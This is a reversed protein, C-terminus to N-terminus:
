KSYGCNIPANMKADIDNRIQTWETIQAQILAAYNADTQAQPDSSLRAQLDNKAAIQQDLVAQQM